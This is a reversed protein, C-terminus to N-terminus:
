RCIGRQPSRWTEKMNGSGEGVSSNHRSRLVDYLDSDDEVGLNDEIAKGVEGLRDIHFEM